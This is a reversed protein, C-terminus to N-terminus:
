MLRQNRIDALLMIIRGFGVMMLSGLVGGAVLFAIAVPPVYPLGIEMIMMGIIVFAAVGIWGSIYIILAEIPRGKPKHDKHTTPM